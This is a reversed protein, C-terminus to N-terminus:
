VISKQSRGASSFDDESYHPHYSKFTVVSIIIYYSTDAFDIDIVTVIIFIVSHPVM